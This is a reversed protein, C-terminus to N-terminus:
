YKTSLNFSLIFSVLYLHYYPLYPYTDLLILLAQTFTNNHEAATRLVRHQKSETKQISPDDCYFEDMWEDMWGDWPEVVWTPGQGGRQPKKIV